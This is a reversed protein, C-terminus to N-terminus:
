EVYEMRAERFGEGAQARRLANAHDPGLGDPHMEVEVVHIQTVRVRCKKATM